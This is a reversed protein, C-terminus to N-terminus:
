KCLIYFGFTKLDNVFFDSNSEAYRTFFFLPIKLMFGFIYLTQYKDFFNEMFGLYREYFASSVAIPVFSAEILWQHVNTSTIISDMLVFWRYM